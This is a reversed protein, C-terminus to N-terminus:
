RLSRVSSTGEGGKPPLPLPRRREEVERCAITRQAIGSLYRDIDSFPSPPLFGAPRGYRQQRAFREGSMPYLPSLGFSSGVYSTGDSTDRLISPTRFRRDRRTSGSSLPIPPRLRWRGIILCALPSPACASRSRAGLRHVGIPGTKILLVSSVTKFALAAFAGSEVTVM